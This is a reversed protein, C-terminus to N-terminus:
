LTVRICTVRIGVGQVKNMMGTGGGGVAVLSGDPLRENLKGGTTLSPKECQEIQLVM